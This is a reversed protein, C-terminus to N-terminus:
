ESVAEEVAEAIQEEDVAPTAAEASRGGTMWPPPAIGADILMARERAITQIHTELDRGRAAVAGTLTETISELGQAEANSEKTPDVHPMVPWTWVYNVRAPRTRLEPVSFRSERALEDVLRNLTGYSRESGSIWTQVGAVTRRYVQTDLRASSYNHKSADLRVMLLPMGVPRGLERMREARYDPYQVPPQTAQYTFPQWGPPVMRVMRRQVEVSEPNSWLVADPHTTYLLTSQDAMQRAADQVQNDYDRLDASPQLSPNLWPIGRAQEEEDILFEHIVLDPPYPQSVLSATLNASGLTSDAIYYTAPRGQRDFRIGMVVRQDGGLEAPTALRRPHVPLLRMAVAGDATDDTVILALYEGCKWLNRVWLKLIAAGSINPRTTPAAFWERWLAELADNYQDDDSQVQLTPGDPGVVDEAFTHIVGQVIGNQRAEYTARSRITVLQSDLWSNVAADNADRWHAQNLRTTEASEFKRERIEGGGMWAPHSRYRGGGSQGIPTPSVGAMCIYTESM